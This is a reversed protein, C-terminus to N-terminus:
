ALQVLSGSPEQLIHLVHHAMLLGAGAQAGAAQRSRQGTHLHLCLADAYTENVVAQVAVNRQSLEGEGTLGPPLLINWWQAFITEHQLKITM